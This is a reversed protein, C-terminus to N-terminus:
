EGCLSREDGHYCDPQRAKQDRAHDHVYARSGAHGNRGTAKFIGNICYSKYHLTLIILIIFTLIAIKVLVNRM